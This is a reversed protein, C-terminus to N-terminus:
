SEIGHSRSCHLFLIATDFIMAKPKLAMNDPLQSQLEAWMISSCFESFPGLISDARRQKPSDTSWLRLIHERSVGSM